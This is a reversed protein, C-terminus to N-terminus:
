AAPPAPPVPPGANAQRALAVLETNTEAIRFIAIFLELVVRTYIVYVLFFLPAATLLAFLGLAVSDTFAWIVYSLAAVGFVVMALVYLVKVIKTTIFSSFSLDFLSSFFSKEQM